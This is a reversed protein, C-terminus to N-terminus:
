ANPRDAITPRDTMADAWDRLRSRFAESSEGAVRWSSSDIARQIKAVWTRLLDLLQSETNPEIARTEFTLKGGRARRTMAVLRGNEARYRIGRHYARRLERQQNFQFVPDVGCFL